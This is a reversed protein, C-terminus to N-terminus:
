MGPSACASCMHVGLLSVCCSGDGCTTGGELEPEMECGKCEKLFDDSNATLLCTRGGPPPYSPALKMGPEWEGKLPHLLSPFESNSAFSRGGDDSTSNEGLCRETVGDEWNERERDGTSCGFDGLSLGRDRM